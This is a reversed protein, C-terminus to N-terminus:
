AGDGRGETMSHIMANHREKWRQAVLTRGDALSGLKVDEMELM